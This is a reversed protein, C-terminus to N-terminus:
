ENYHGLNEYEHANKNIWYEYFQLFLGVFECIM